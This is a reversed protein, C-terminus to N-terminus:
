VQSAPPTPKPDLSDAKNSQAKTPFAPKTAYYIGVALPINMFSLIGLVSFEPDPIVFSFNWIMGIFMWAFFCWWAVKSRFCFGIGMPILPLSIGIFVIREVLPENLPPIFIRQPWMLLASACFIIGCVIMFIGLPLVSLRYARDATYPKAMQFWTIKELYHM